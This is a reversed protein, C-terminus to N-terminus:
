DEYQKGTDKEAHISNELVTTMLDSRTGASKGCALLNGGSIGEQQVTFCLVLVLTEAWM